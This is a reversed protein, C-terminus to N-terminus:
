LSPAHSRNLLYTHLEYAFYQVDDDKMSHAMADALCEDVTGDSAIWNM